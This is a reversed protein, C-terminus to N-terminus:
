AIGAWRSDPDVRKLEVHQLLYETTVQGISRFHQFRKEEAQLCVDCRVFVNSMAHHLKIILRASSLHNTATTLYCLQMYADVWLM